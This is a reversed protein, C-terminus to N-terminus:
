AADHDVRRMGAEPTWQGFADLEVPSPLPEPNLGHWARDLMADHYGLLFDEGEPSSEPPWTGGHGSM